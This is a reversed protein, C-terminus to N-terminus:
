YPWMILQLRRNLPDCVALLTEHTDGSGSDHCWAVDLPNNFLGEEVGQAGFKRVFSGDQSFVQVRHNGCDAVAVLGNAISIGHPNFLQGDGTGRSGISRVFSGDQAFVQVRHNGYDSVFLTGDTACALGQPNFLQADGTGCSGISRVFSGDQSFVQVRHNGYDSVFVLAQELEHGHRHQEQLEHQEHQAHLEPSARALPSTAAAAAGTTSPVARPLARRYLAVGTAFNVLTGPPGATGISRVFSGSELEYVQVRHKNSDAVYLHRTVRDFALAHPNCLQSDANGGQGIRQLVLGSEREVIAVQHHRQDCVALCHDIRRGRATHSEGPEASESDDSSSSSANVTPAAFAHDLEVVAAGALDMVAHVGKRARRVDAWAERARRERRQRRDRERAERELKAQQQRTAERRQEDHQRRLEVLRPEAAEYLALIAHLEQVYARLVEVSSCSCM